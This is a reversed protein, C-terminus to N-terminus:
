LTVYVSRIRLLVPSFTDAKAVECLKMCMALLPETRHTSITWTPGPDTKDNPKAPQVFTLM